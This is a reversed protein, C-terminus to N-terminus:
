RQHDLESQALCSTLVPLDISGGSVVCIATGREAAPMSLAAAVALAGAGEVVLKNRSALRGITRRVTDEEVLVVQDVLRRLLPFMEEVILPTAAGECLTPQHDIWIPRGAELASALSPNSTSQVAVLRAEPRRAKLVSGVGAILGGGGVPVFVTDVRPCDALIELGITASGTVMAPEAWPNLFAEPELRWRREFMYALLEDLSVTDIQVGLALIAQRKNEPLWDPVVTRARTNLIKAVYGLAQATNGASTTVLGREVESRDLGSAWNYVGRLKFSGTPQLNEPKLWIPSSAAHGHLPLLPTHVAIGALRRAASEVGAASPAAVHAGGWGTPRPSCHTM